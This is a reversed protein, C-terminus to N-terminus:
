IKAIFRAFVRLDNVTNIMTFVIAFSFGSCLSLYSIFIQSFLRRTERERSLASNNLLVIAMCTRKSDQYMEKDDEVFYCRPIVLNQTNQLICVQIALNKYRRKLIGTFVTPAHKAQALKKLGIRTNFLCVCSCCEFTFQVHLYMKKVLRQARRRASSRLSIYWSNYRVHVVM